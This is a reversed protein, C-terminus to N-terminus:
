APVKKEVALTAKKLSAPYREIFDVMFQTVDIKDALLVDLKRKWEAKLDPRSILEVAKDIGQGPNDYNFILGYKKELELFNGMDHEGVFTNCRIAPTGLLAAETTMTQSDGILMQAYYLVSHINVPSIKIRYKELEAPLPLESTIFVRAHKEMERVARIRAEDSFGGKGFDHGAKWAVFRMVVYKEGPKLGMKKLVEPDPTFYKPHLYALETYGNYRVHKRGFDKKFCDPTVIANTFPVYLLHEIPSPESDDFAVCPKGLLFSVHANRISGFGFFVDPRFDKVAQLLKFDLILINKVKDLLSIGYTGLKKYELGYENLLQYSIEKESATIMVEHGRNKMERIFHRFYHVHAPHNIDVAIKM